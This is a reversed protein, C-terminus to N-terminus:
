SWRNEVSKKSVLTKHGFESSKRAAEVIEVVRLGDLGSVVPNKKNIICDLFNEWESVYTEDIKPKHSFLQKWMGTSSTFIEVSGEIGDWKLSGNEGIVKCIRIQDQRIFDLNVVGIIERGNQKPRFGFILHATDEVDIELNSQRTLTAMTWEIDGFIWKLYDIEHSLELLVGGGLEEKASVGSRYDKEPRWDPLYQGAECNVSYIEGVINDNLYNRFQQLSPSFRLNYGVMLVNENKECTELLQVIGAVSNSLPKEIFLNIGAEALIQASEIHFASPTAIVAIKPNFKLVEDLSYLNGNSFHPVEKIDIHRLVKIEANPIIQRLIKLHRAGISGLGIIVIKM